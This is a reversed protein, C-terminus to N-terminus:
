ERLANEEEGMFPPKLAVMEYITCGLSWIDAKLSYSNRLWVDPAMYLPTGAFTTGVNGQKAIGFDGLKFIDDEGIFINEPKIDRHIINKLHM